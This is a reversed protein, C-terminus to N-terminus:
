SYLSRSLPWPLCFKILVITLSLCACARTIFSEVVLAIVAIVAASDFSSLEFDDDYGNDLKLRKANTVPRRSALSRSM